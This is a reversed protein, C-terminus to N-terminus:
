KKIKSSNLSPQSTLSVKTEKRNKEEKKNKECDELYLGKLGDGKKRPLIHIHAHLVVQGAVEYNNILLNFGEGKGEKILNFSVKKIAELMENGLSSPMDLVTEFHKKPIILTKGKVFQNVDLFAIFNDDEYTKTAPIEGKAIKCFICDKDKEM